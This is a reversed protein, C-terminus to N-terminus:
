LPAAAARHLAPIIALEKLGSINGTLTLLDLRRLELEELKTMIVTLNAMIMVLVPYGSDPTSLTQDAGRRYSSTGIIGEADTIHSRRLRM